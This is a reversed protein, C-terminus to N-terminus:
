RAGQARATEVLRAFAAPDSVALDALVKRDLSVGAKKLGSAAQDNKGEDELRRDGTAKGTHEKAKGGLEEAKHKAKDIFDAM